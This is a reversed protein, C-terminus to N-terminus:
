RGELAELQAAARPQAVARDYGLVSLLALLLAVLVQRVVEQTRPDRWVGRLWESWAM